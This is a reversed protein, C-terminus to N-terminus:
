NTEDPMFTKILDDSPWMARLLATPTPMYDGDLLVEVKWRIADLTAEAKEAQGKYNDLLANTTYARDSSMQSFIAGLLEPNKITIPTGGIEAEQTRTSTDDPEIKTM